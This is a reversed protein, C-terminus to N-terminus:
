GLDPLYVRMSIDYSSSSGCAPSTTDNAASGDLGFFTLFHVRSGWTLSKTSKIKESSMNLSPKESRMWRSSKLLEIWEHSGWRCSERLHLDIHVLHWESLDALRLDGLSVFDEFLHHFDEVFAWGTTRRQGFQGRAEVGGDGVAETAHHGWDEVRLYTNWWRREIKWWSKSSEWRSSRICANWDWRM